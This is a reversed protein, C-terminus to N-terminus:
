GLPRAWATLTAAIRPVDLDGVAASLMFSEGEDVGPARLDFGNFIYFLRMAVWALRKNGDLLAHNRVLSDLLAAAKEHQSPYAQTGYMSARPRGVASSLLGWDRVDPQCGVAVLAAALLDDADLYDIHDAPEGHPVTPRQQGSV